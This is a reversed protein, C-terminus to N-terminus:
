TVAAPGHDKRPFADERDVRLNGEFQPIAGEAGPPTTEGPGKEGRRLERRVPLDEGAQPVVPHDLPPVRVGAPEQAAPLGAVPPTVVQEERPPERRVALRQGGAVFLLRDTA